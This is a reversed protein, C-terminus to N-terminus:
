TTKQHVGKGEETGNRECSISGEILYAEEIIIKKGKCKNGIIFICEIM